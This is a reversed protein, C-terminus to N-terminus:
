WVEALTRQHAWLTRLLGSRSRQVGERQDWLRGARAWRGTTEAEEAQRELAIMIRALRRIEMVLLTEKM